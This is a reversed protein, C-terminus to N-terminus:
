DGASAVLAQLTRQPLQQMRQNLRHFLHAAAEADALARHAGVLDIHFHRCLESLSYSPLGPLVITALEHTDLAPRQRNLGQARLFGLDFAANHAVVAAVDSAVFARLDAAVAEFIPANAVDADRIGTMQQIRSPIQRQPNVFTVFRDLIRGDQVRVAGVEIIADRNPELGTTELDLAVFTRGSM